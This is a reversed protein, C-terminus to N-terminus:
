KLAKTYAVVGCEYPHDYYVVDGDEPRYRLMKIIIFLDGGGGFIMVENLLMIMFNGTVASLATMGVGLVITPMAGGLIYQWKKLPEACTCYPTLMEWIVGFSISRFHNKAFIGWTIGHIAEHLIFLIILSVAYVAVLLVDLGGDNEIGVSFSDALNGFPNVAFFIVGALIVFPLPFVLAAVNAEVVGATLDKREYGDAEMKECIKQFHEKRELEKGTLKREKEKM